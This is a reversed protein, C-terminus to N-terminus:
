FNYELSLLARRDYPSIMVGNIPTKSAKDFLNEGKLKIDLNKTYHYILGLTYDLGSSIKYGNNDKYSSRYLLENYIELDKYSNFIQVMAGNRSSYKIDSFSDFFEAKIRNKSDIKYTTNIFYQFLDINKGSNIFMNADQSFVIIDDIKIKGIGVIFSLRELTKEVEAKFIINKTSDLKPNPIYQPSYTNQNLTPYFYCSQLSTRFDTTDDLKSIYGVRFIKDNQAKAHNDYHALKFGFTFVNNENLYYEDEIYAYYTDLKNTGVILNKDVGNVRFDRVDFDKHKFELGFLFNHNDVKQKKELMLGYIQSNNKAKFEKALGGQTKFGLYDSEQVDVEEYSSHLILKISNQLYKTFSLSYFQHEIDGDDINKGFGSFIDNKFRMAGLSIQYDNQKSFNLYIQAKTADRTMTSNANEYARQKYNGVDLNLLYKYEGFVGTDIIQSTTSGRSDLQALISTLNERSPNKSYIKIVIASPEGSFVVANASLYIEIHDVFGLGMKEFQVLGAGSSITDLEISDVYVKIGFNSEKAFPSKTLIGGGFFGSKLSFLRITKLVDKLTYAQMADLDERNFLIVTGNKLEKTYRSLDQEQAYKALLNDLMAEDAMINTVLFFM